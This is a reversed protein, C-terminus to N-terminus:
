LEFMVLLEPSQSNELGVVCLPMGGRASYAPGVESDDDQRLLAMLTDIHELEVEKPAAPVPVDGCPLYM